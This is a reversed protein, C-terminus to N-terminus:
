ERLSAKFEEIQGKEVIKQLGQAVYDDVTKAKGFLFFSNKPELGTFNRIKILYEAMNRTEPNQSETQDIIKFAKESKLGNWIESPEHPSDKFIFEIDKQRTEYAQMLEDIDLDSPNKGIFDAHHQTFDNQEPTLDPNGWVKPGRLYSPQEPKASDDRLKKFFEDVAKRDTPDGTYGQKRLTQSLQEMNANEEASNLSGESADMQAEIKAKLDEANIKLDSSPITESITTDKAVSPKIHKYEYKEIDKEFQSGPGHEEILGDGFKLEDVKLKGNELKLQYAVDNAPRIRIEEGTVKNVYGHEMAVKHAAGGSFEHLAKIDGVDGKFGLSKALEPNNDIQRRFAHEIGEGKQIIAAEDLKITEAAPMEPVPTSTPTTPAATKIDELAKTDIGAKLRAGQLKVNAKHLVEDISDPQHGESTGTTHLQDSANHALHGIGYSMGMSTGAGVALGLVAKTILRNRKAKQERELIEAYEKKSKALSVDFTEEKFMEALKKEEDARKATSKEKVLKDFIKNAGQGMVAGVASRTLRLGVYYTIGGAAVVTGGSVTAIVATGLATSVLLKKWRPTEPNLYWGLGKKLIGKEKPPLSEAKLANLRIQEEIIVRTFIENQKYKDLEREIALPSLRINFAQGMTQSFNELSTKKEQFMMNGYEVTAKEYEQELVKLEIPIEKIKAGFIFRKARTIRGASALFKKYEEAYKARAENLKYEIDELTLTPTAEPTTPLIEPTPIPEVAPAPEPNPTPEPTTTPKTEPTPTPIEPKGGDAYSYGSVVPIPTTPPITEPSTNIPVDGVYKLNDITQQTLEINKKLKNRGEETVDGLSELHTLARKQRELEEELYAIKKETVSSLKPLNYPTEKSEEVEEFDNEFISNMLDLSEEIKEKSQGLDLLNKRTARDFPIELVDENPTEQKKLVVEILPDTKLAKEKHKKKSNGPDIIEPILVNKMKNPKPDGM